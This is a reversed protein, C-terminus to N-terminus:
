FHKSSGNVFNMWREWAQRNEEKARVQDASPGSSRNEATSAKEPGSPQAAEKKEPQFQIFKNKFLSIHITQAPEIIIETTSEGVQLQHVGPGAKEIRMPTQGILTGDLKVSLGPPESFVTLRGPEEGAAKLSRTPEILEAQLATFNFVSVALFGALFLVKASIKKMVCRRFQPAERGQIKLDSATFDWGGATRTTKLEIYLILPVVSVNCTRERLLFFIFDTDM